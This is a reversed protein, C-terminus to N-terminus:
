WTYISKSFVFVPRLASSSPFRHLSGPDHTHTYTKQSNTHSYFICPLFPSYWFPFPLLSSLYQSTQNINKQENQHKSKALLRALIRILPACLCCCVHLVLRSWRIQMESTPFSGLFTNFQWILIVVTFYCVFLFFFLFLCVRMCTWTIILSIEVSSSSFSFEMCLMVLVCLFKITNNINNWM